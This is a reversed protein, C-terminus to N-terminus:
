HTSDHIELGVSAEATGGLTAVGSLAKEPTCTTVDNRLRLHAGYGYKFYKM